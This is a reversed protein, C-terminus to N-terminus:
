RQLMAVTGSRDLQTGPAIWGAPVSRSRVATLVRARAYSENRRHAVRYMRSVQREQARAAEVIADCRISGFQSGAICAIHRPCAAVAIAGRM